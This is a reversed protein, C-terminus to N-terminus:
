LGTKALCEELPGRRGLDECAANMGSREGGGERINSTGLM